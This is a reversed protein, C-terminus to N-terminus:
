LRNRLVKKARNIRMYVSNSKIGIIKSIYDIPLGLFYYLYIPTKYMPKLDELEYFIEILLSDETDIIQLADFDLNKNIYKNWKTNNYQRCKNITTKILWTKKAVETDFYLDKEFYLLFVDQFVDEVEQKNYLQKVATSYVINQYKNFTCEFDQLIPNDPFM